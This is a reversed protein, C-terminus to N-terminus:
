GINYGTNYATVYRLVNYIKCQTRDFMESWKSSRITLNLENQPKTNEANQRREIVHNM